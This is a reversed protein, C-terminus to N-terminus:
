ESPYTDMIKSIAHAVYKAQDRIINASFASPQHQFDFGYMHSTYFVKDQQENLYTTYNDISNSIPPLQIYGGMNGPIFFYVVTEELERGNKFKAILGEQEM